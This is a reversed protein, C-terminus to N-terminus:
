EGEESDADMLMVCARHRAYCRQAWYDVYDEVNTEKLIKKVWFSYAKQDDTTGDGRFDILAWRLDRNEHHNKGGWLGACDTCIKCRKCDVCDHCWKSHEGCNTCNTCSTCTECQTCNECHKCATCHKCNTCDWCDKCNICNKCNRVSELQRQAEQKTIGRKATNGSSDTWAGKILVIKKAWSNYGVVVQSHGPNAKQPKKSKKYKIM